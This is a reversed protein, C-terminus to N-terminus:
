FIIGKLIFLESKVGRGVFLIEPYPQNSCLIDSNRQHIPGVWYTTPVFSLTGKPYGSNHKSRTFTMKMYKGTKFVDSISFVHLSVISALTKNCSAFM